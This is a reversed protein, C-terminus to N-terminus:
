APLLDATESGTISVVTPPPLSPADFTATQDFTATVHSKLVRHADRDIWTTIISMSTGKSTVRTDGAATPGSHVNSTQAITTEVVAAKAGHFSEDRLYRSRTVLHNRGVSGELSIDYDKSWRDGPMVARDPLVGWNISGGAPDGHVSESLVRGDAAVKLDITSSPASSVPMTLQDVTSTIVVSSPDLSIDGIGVADVSRVTYTLLATEKLIDPVQDLTENATLEFSYRYM